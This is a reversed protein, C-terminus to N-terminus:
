CNTRTVALTISVFYISQVWNYQDATMNLEIMINSPQGVQLVKAVAANNQDIQISEAVVECNPNHISVNKIALMMGILLLFRKDVKRMIEKNEEQTFSSLFESKTQFAIELKTSANKYIAVLADKPPM